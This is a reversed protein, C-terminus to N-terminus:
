LLTRNLPTLIIYAHKRSAYWTCQVSLRIQESVASLYNDAQCEFVSGDLEKSVGYFNLEEGFYGVALFIIFVHHLMGKLFIIFEHRLMNGDDVDDNDVFLLLFLLLSSIKIILLLLLSQLTNIIIIIVMVIILPIILMLMIVQIIIMVSQIIIIKKKKKKNLCTPVNPTFLWRCM